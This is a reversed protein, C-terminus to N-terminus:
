PGCTPVAISSPSGVGCSSLGARGCCSLYRCLWNLGHRHEAHRVMRPPPRVDGSHDRHGHAAADVLISAPLGATRPQRGRRPSIIPELTLAASPVLAPHDQRVEPHMPCTYITAARSQSRPAQTNTPAPAAPQTSHSSHDHPHGHSVEGEAGFCTASPVARTIKVFRPTCPCTYVIPNAQMTSPEQSLKM